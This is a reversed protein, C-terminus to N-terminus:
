DRPVSIGPLGARDNDGYIAVITAEANQYIHDMSQLMMKKEEDDNQNICYKDVWLYRIGIEKVVRAADQVTLPANNISFNGNPWAEQTTAQTSTQSTPSGWVYSLALYR